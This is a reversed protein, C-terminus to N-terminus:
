EYCLACPPSRYLRDPGCGPYSCSRQSYFVEKGSEEARKIERATSEGYYGTHDAVVFIANSADIKKFHAEDLAKKQEDTYWNKVGAKDSPYVALSFVAHGDLTLLENWKKFLGEFRASGCLTIIM